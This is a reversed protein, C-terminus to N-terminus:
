RQPTQGVLKGFLLAFEDEALKKYYESRGAVLLCPVGDKERVAGLIERRFFILRWIVAISAIAFGSYVIALGRQKIVYFRVWYPMERMQLRYGLFDLSGLKPVIGEAVKQGAREAILYFTPNNFEMTKTRKIGDKQEFDPFFYAKFTFDGLRFGDEKGNVVDLKFYSGGVERGSPDTLTFLPAVGLHKFVFSSHETTYPSNIGVEHVAGQPDVLKVSIGVPTNRVVQPVVSQITFAAHPPSGIKPMKPPPKQNYRSLEGAFPEGQALDIYGIFESYVSVLGGVLILFFSLHFLGSALPSLRNKVGYFALDNSIVAYGSGALGKIVAARDMSAPLPYNGRFPYGPAAEPDAIRALPMEIRKMMVPIRLWMVLSLNIFFFAWLTLTVWSTYISTLQFFDLFAVLKPSSAQWQFYIDRLLDKQPVWLGIIFMCGLLSILVITFRLSRLSKLMKKLM